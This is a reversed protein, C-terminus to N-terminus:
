DVAEDFCGVNQKSRQPLMYGEDVIRIVLCLWDIDVSRKVLGAGVWVQMLACRSDKVTKLPGKTLSGLVVGLMNQLNLVRAGTRRWLSPIRKQPSSAPLNTVLRLAAPGASEQFEPNRNVSYLHYSCALGGSTKLKLGIGQVIAPIM